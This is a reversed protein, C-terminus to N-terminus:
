QYYFTFNMEQEDGLKARMDESWKGYPARATIAKTCNREASVGADGEVSVIRDIQGESNLRFTITVHKGSDPYTRTNLLNKEWQEQVTNIMKQLYARFETWKPDLKLGPGALSSVVEPPLPQTKESRPAAPPTASGSHSCGSLCLVLGLLLTAILTFGSNAGNHM